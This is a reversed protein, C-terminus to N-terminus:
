RKTKIRRLLIGSLPIIIIITIFTIGSILLGNKFSEPFYWMTITHDGAPVPVARLALDAVLVKLEQGNELKARWGPYWTDSLFLLQDSASSTEFVIKVPRYQLIKVQALEDTSISFEKGPDQDLLINQRPDFSDEYLRTILKEGDPIVEYKGALFVRPYTDLFEWIRFDGDEFVQRQSDDPLRKKDATPGADLWEPHDVLYKIGFLKMLKITRSNELNRGLVVDASRPLDLDLKGEVASHLLVSRKYDNLSDYGEVSYIGFNTAFNDGLFKGNYGIFRNIGANKQLWDIVPHVPYVFMKESFATFKRFQYINQALSILIIGAISIKILGNKKIAIGLLILSIFYVASPLVMNRLSILYFQPDKAPDAAGLSIKTILTNLFLVIIGLSGALGIKIARKRNDSDVLLSIGFASLVSLGFAEVFLIRNAIGTSLVPIKYRFVAEAWPTKFSFSASIVVVTLWFLIDNRIKGKKKAALAVISLLLPVTGVFIVHEYYWGGGVRAFYNRTAEHGFYDPAFLTALHRAPLLYGKLIEQIRSQSNIYERSSRNLLEDTPILHFSTLALALIFWSIISLLYYIISLKKETVLRYVAYVATVGMVYLTTQWYGALISIVLGGLGVLWWKKISSPQHIISSSYIIKDISLLILPLWLISHPATVVEMNWTVMFESFMFTTGGFIAALKGIKLNLLYWYTFLGALFFAMLQFLTWYVQLPLLPLLVHLPYFAGSQWEAMHPNGSFNYPNWLPLEGHRYAEQTLRMYPYYLRLQDLMGPKAPVGAPFGAFKEYYWPSFFSVLNRANLPIKGQFIPYFALLVVFLLFLYQWNKKM